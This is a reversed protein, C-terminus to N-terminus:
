PNNKQFEEIQTLKNQISSVTTMLDSRRKVRTIPSSAKDATLINKYTDHASNLLSIIDAIKNEETCSMKKRCM